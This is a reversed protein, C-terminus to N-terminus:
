TEARDVVRELGVEGGVGERWVEGAEAEQGAVPFAATYRSKELRAHVVEEPWTEAFEADLVNAWMVRVGKVGQLVRGVDLPAKGVREAGKQERLHETRRIRRTANDKRRASPGAEQQLLVAALDAVSNAKQDM